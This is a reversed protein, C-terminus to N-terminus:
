RRDEPPYLNQGMDMSHISSIWKAGDLFGQFSSEGTFVLVVHNGMTECHHLIRGHTLLGNGWHVDWHWSFHVLIPPAVVGFHYWQNQGVAMYGGSSFLNPEYKVVM